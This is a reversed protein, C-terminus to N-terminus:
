RDITPGNYYQGIAILREVLKPDFIFEKGVVRGGEWIRKVRFGMRHLREVKRQASLYKSAMIEDYVISGRTKADPGKLVLDKIAGDEKYAIYRHGSSPIKAKVDHVKHMPDWLDPNLYNNIKM